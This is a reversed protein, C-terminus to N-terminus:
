IHLAVIGLFVGAILIAALLGCDRILSNWNPHHIGLSQTMSWFGHSVHLALATIGAAYLLAFVPDALVRGVRDAAPVTQDAFRVTGLHLLLFAINAAGTFAMTRAAWSRRITLRSVAYRKGKATVNRLVLSIGTVIHLLLIILLLMGAASLLPGLSRLHEAYAAFADRSQFILSNGAAHFLLFGGLLLGTLAMIYKRGVSSACIQMFRSM